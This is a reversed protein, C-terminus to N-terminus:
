LHNNHDRSWSEELWLEGPLHVGVRHGPASDRVWWLDDSRGRHGPLDLYRVGPRVRLVSAPSSKDQLLYMRYITNSDM